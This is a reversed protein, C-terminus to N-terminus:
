LWQWVFMCGGRITEPAGKVLSWRETRGEAARLEEGRADDEAAVAVADAAALLTVDAVVAMRRLESAYEYRRRLEVSGVRKGVRRQADAPAGGDDREHRRGVRPGGGGGDVRCASGGDRPAATAARADYAWGIASLAALELSDGVLTDRPSAAPPPPAADEEDEDDTEDGEEPELARLAHCGLPLLPSSSPSPVALSNSLPPQHSPNPNSVCCCVGEAIHVASTHQISGGWFIPNRVLGDM